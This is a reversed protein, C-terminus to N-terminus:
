LVNIDKSHSEMSIKVEFNGFEGNQCELKHPPITGTSGSARCKIVASSCDNQSELM